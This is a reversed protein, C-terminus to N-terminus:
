RDGPEPPASVILEALGRRPRRDGADIEVVVAQVLFAADEADEAMGVGRRDDREAQVGQLMASLLRGADDGEVALAKMRLPALTEDAIVEGAGGVDVAQGALGGDAMDAVRGGALRHQAVDLRQEGLELRAAKRDGM